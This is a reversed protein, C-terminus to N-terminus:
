NREILITIHINSLKCAGVTYNVFSPDPCVAIRMTGNGRINAEFNWATRMIKTTPNM